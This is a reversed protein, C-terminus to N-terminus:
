LRLLQQQQRRRMWGRTRDRQQLRIVAPQSELTVHILAEGRKMESPQLKGAVSETLPTSPIIARDARKADLADQAWRSSVLLGAIDKLEPTDHIM